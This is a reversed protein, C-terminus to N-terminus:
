RSRYPRAPPAARRERAARAPRVRLAGALEDDSLAQADFLSMAGFQLATQMRRRAGGGNCDTRRSPGDVTWGVRQSSPQVHGIDLCLFDTSEPGLELLCLGADGSQFGWLLRAESIADGPGGSPRDPSWGIWLGTLCQSLLPSIETALGAAVLESNISAPTCATTGTQCRTKSPM